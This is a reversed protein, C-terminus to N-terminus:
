FLTRRRNSRRMFIRVQTTTPELSQSDTSLSREPAATSCYLTSPQVETPAIDTEPKETPSLADERAVTSVPSGPPTESHGTAEPETRPTATSVNDDEHPENELPCDAEDAVEGSCQTSESGVPRGWHLYHLM